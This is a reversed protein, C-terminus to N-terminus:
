KPLVFDPVLDPDAPQVSSAVEVIRWASPDDKDQSAVIALTAKTAARTPEEGAVVWEAGIAPPTLPRRHLIIYSPM